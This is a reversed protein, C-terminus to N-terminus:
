APRWFTARSNPAVSMTSARPSSAAWATRSSVPPMPASAASSHAPVPSDMAVAKAAARGPDVNGFQEAVDEVAGDVGAQDEVVLGAQIV